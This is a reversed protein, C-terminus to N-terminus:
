RRGPAAADGPVDVGVATGTDTRPAAGSEEECALVIRARQALSQSAMRKRALAELAAREAESLLLPVLKPGPM